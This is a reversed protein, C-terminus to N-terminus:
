QGDDNRRGLDNSRYARRYPTEVFRDATLDPQNLYGRAVGVGVVHIEGAEAPPRARSCGVGGAVVPRPGGGWGGRTIEGRRERRSKGATPTWYIFQRTPSPGGAPCRATATPTWARCASPEASRRRGKSTGITWSGRMPGRTTPM